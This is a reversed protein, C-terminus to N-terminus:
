TKSVGIEPAPKSTPFLLGTRSNLIQVDDTGSLGESFLPLNEAPTGIKPLELTAVNV